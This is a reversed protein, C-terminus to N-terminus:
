KIDSIVFRHKGSRSRKIEELYNISLVMDRDLEEKVRNQIALEADQALKTSSVINLTISNLDHQVFQFQKIAEMGDLLHIFYSPYINKGQRTKIIDNSRCVGMEMMPFPSGCECEGEKLKGSDGIEYRIMPMVRNTLSTVLLKDEGEEHISELYVMDSFFHINGHSCECAINPIERSGYQNYVKCSFAKEIKERQWGYLVEATSFVGKITAPMQIGQDIIYSAVEALISAYGQLLVPRYSQITRSWQDLDAESYEYAGITMEAKVFEKLAQRFGTGAKIDQRAGWFNLIKEGPQWGAWMYSRCMGARMLESKYNDYYFSLPKGTSGGTSGIKLSAKDLRRDVMRERNNLVDDKRLIPLKSVDLGDPADNLIGDLREHYFDTNEYAFTIIKGLELHARQALDCPYMTQHGLLEELYDYREQHGRKHLLHRLHRM